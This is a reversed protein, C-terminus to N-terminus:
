TSFLQLPQDLFEYNKFYYYHCHPQNETKEVWDCTHVVAGLYNAM